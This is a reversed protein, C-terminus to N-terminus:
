LRTESATTYDWNLQDIISREINTPVQWFGLRGFFPIPAKLKCRNKLAFRYTGVFRTTRSNKVCDVIDVLGVIAGCTLQTPGYIHWIM